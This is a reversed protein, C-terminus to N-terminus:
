NDDIFPNIDVCEFKINFLKEDSEIIESELQYDKAILKEQLTILYDFLEKGRNWKSIDALYLKGNLINFIGIKNITYNEDRLMQTYCLLQVIWEIQIFTNESCKYDILIDDCVLDCEGHYIDYNVYKKCEINTHKLIYPIFNEKILRILLQYDDINEDNIKVYLMRLRNDSLSNCKSVNFIDTLIDMTDIQPNTFKIYSDNIERVKDQDYNFRSLFLEEINMSGNEILHYNKINNKLYTVFNKILNKDNEEMKKICKKADNYKILSSDDFMDLNDIIKTFNYIFNYKYKKILNIQDKDLPINHLVKFASKDFIDKKTSELIFRTIITDFYNGFETYLNEKKVFKSWKFPDDLNYISNDITTKDLRVNPLIGKNRLRIYDEGRLNKIIETVGTKYEISELESLKKDDNKANEWNLLNQNVETLFRCIYDSLYFYYIRSKARTTAVYFLRREEEIRLFDKMRPFFSDDCGIIYVLEFELGKSKHITALTIHNEKKKVRIDDDRLLVNNIGYKYLINEVKLLLFNNRSLIAIEHLPYNKIKKLISTLIMMDYNNFTTKIVLPKVGDKNTGLMKKDLKNKNFSISSNALEIINNTSRYNTSLNFSLTNSFYKDFNILYNVDSQRFSYINQSDDGVVTIVLGLENLRKFFIYQYYDIDQFEDVFLYKFKKFYKIGQDTKSFKIVRHIYESVSMLQVNEDLIKNVHLIKRAIADITGCMFNYFLHINNKIKDKMVESADKTFTTLIIEHLHLNHKKILYLIRNILTTTKGSGASAIIRINKDIPANIILKQEESLDM